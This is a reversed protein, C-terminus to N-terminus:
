KILFLSKNIYEGKVRDLQSTKMNSQLILNNSCLKLYCSAKALDTNDTCLAIKDTQPNLHQEFIENIINRFVWRGDTKM